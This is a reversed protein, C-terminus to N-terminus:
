SSYKKLLNKTNELNKRVIGHGVFDRGTLSLLYESQTTILKILKQAIAKVNMQKQPNDPDNLWSVVASLENPHISLCFNPVNKIEGLRLQKSNQDILLGYKVQNGGKKAIRLATDLKEQGRKQDPRDSFLDDFSCITQGTAKHVLVQDTKNKYDDYDSSRAVIFEDGLFHNLLITIAMEAQAGPRENQSQKWKKLTEDLTKTRFENQKFALVREDNLGSFELELENITSKDTKIEDSSYINQFNNMQIKGEANLLNHLEPNKSQNLETNRQNSMKELGRLLQQSIFRKDNKESKSDAVNSNMLEVIQTKLIEPTPTQETKQPLTPREFRGVSNFSM